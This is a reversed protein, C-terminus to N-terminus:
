PKRPNNPHSASPISGRTKKECSFATVARSSAAPPSDQLVARPPSPSASCRRAPSPIAYPATQLLLEDHPQAQNHQPTHPSRPLIRRRNLRNTSRSRLFQPRPPPVSSHLPAQPLTPSSRHSPSAPYPSSAHRVHPSSASPPAPAMTASASPTSAAQPPSRSSEARGLDRCPARLSCVRHSKPPSHSQPERRNTARTDASRQPLSPVHSASNIRRDIM